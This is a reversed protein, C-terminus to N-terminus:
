SVFYQLIHVLTNLNEGEPGCVPLKKKKEQEERMKNNDIVINWIQSIIKGCHRLLLVINTSSCVNCYSNNLLEITYHTSHVFLTIPM